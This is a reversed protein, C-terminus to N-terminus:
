CACRAPWRHRKGADLDSITQQVFAYAFRCAPVSLQSIWVAHHCVRLISRWSMQKAVKHVAFMMVGFVGSALAMWGSQRFFSSKSMLPLTELFVQLLRTAQESPPGLGMRGIHAGPRHGGAWVGRQSDWRGCCEQTPSSILGWRNSQKACRLFHQVLPLRQDTELPPAPGETKPIWWPRRFAM